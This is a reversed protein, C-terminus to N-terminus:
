MGQQGKYTSKIKKILYDRIKEAGNMDIAPLYGESHYRRNRGFGRSMGATEIEMSSFGFMRAIIGRKIEVNQIREYPISAYNKWIIGNEFKLGDANFEYLWRNYSMRAYIEAVSIVFLIYFVFALILGLGISSLDGLSSASLFRFFQFAISAVWIGAFALPVYAKLRFLWVAKPHLQNM